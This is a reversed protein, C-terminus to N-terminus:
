ISSSHNAAKVGVRNALKADFDALCCSYVARDVGKADWRVSYVM